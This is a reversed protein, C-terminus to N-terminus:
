LLFFCNLRYLCKDDNLFARFFDSIQMIEVYYVYYVVLVHAAVFFPSQTFPMETTGVFCVDNREKKRRKENENKEGHWEIACNVSRNEPKLSTANAIVFACILVCVCRREARMLSRNPKHLTKAIFTEDNKPHTPFVTRM